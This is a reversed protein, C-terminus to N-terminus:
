YDSDDDDDEQGSSLPNRSPKSLKNTRCKQRFHKKKGFQFGRRLDDLFLKYSWGPRDTASYLVSLLKPYQLMRKKGHTGELNYNLIIDESLVYVLRQKLGVPMLLPKLFRTMEDKKREDMGIFAEANDLDEQTLLPFVPRQINKEEEAEQEQKVMRKMMEQHGKMLDDIIENQRDMFGKIQQIDARMEKIEKTLEQMQATIDM